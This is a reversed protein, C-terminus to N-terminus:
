CPLYRFDTSSSLFITKLQFFIHRLVDFPVLQRQFDFNEKQKKRFIATRENWNQHLFKQFRNNREQSIAIKHLIDYCILSFNIKLFLRKYNPFGYLTNTNQCNLPWNQCSFVTKAGFGKLVSSELTYSIELDVKHSYKSINQSQKGIVWFRTKQWSTGKLINLWM